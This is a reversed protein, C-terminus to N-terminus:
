TLRHGLTVKIAKGLFLGDMSSCGPGGNLWIILPKELPNSPAEFLWYFHYGNRIPDALIHGAYHVLATNAPLGPLSRVRHEEPKAATELRRRINWHDLDKDSTNLDSSNNWSSAELAPKIM